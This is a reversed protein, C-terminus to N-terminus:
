AFLGLLGLLNNVGGSDSGQADSGNGLMSLLLLQTLFGSGGNGGGFLSTGGAGPGNYMSYPNSNANSKNLILNWFPDESQQANAAGANYATAGGGNKMYSVIQNIQLESYGQARYSDRVQGWQIARELGQQAFMDVQSPQTAISGAMNIMYDAADLSSGISGFINGLGMSNYLNDFGSLYSAPQYYNNNYSNGYGNSYNAPQYYNGYM